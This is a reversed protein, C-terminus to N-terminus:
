YGLQKNVVNRLPQNSEYRRLNDMFIALIRATYVPTLGSYHATIIVNPMDWLPSSPVLPESAFVDLGAGAIQGTQLAWILQDEQITQGRGINVIYASEKMLRLESEGIMDRTEPTLPVTLVVFDASPLHKHLEAPGIITSVGDVAREPNRRVGIVTLGHASALKATRTGIAGVGILLMTKGELEFLSYSDQPWSWKKELQNRMQEPFGRAFSLLFAMIHESIPVAHVGSANTIILESEVLEPYRLVWDAGAGWNQFWRLRPACTLLDHPFSGFAIEIQDLLDEIQNRDRTVVISKNPIIEQIRDLQTQSLKGDRLGLVVISM